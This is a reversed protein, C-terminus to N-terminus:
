GEDKIARTLVAIADKEWKMIGQPRILFLNRSHGHGALGEMDPILM